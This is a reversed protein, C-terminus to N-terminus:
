RGHTPLGHPGGSRDHAGSQVPAAGPSFPSSQPLWGVSGCKLFGRTLITKSVPSLVHWLFSLRGWHLSAELAVQILCCSWAINKYYNKSVGQCNSQDNKQLLNLRACLSFPHTRWSRAASIPAFGALLATSWTWASLLWINPSRPFIFGM